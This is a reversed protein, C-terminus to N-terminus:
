SHDAVVQVKLNATVEHHLKISVNTVGLMKIAEHLQIKKKDIPFGADHLGEAIQKSTIAGFVRDGDGVKVPLTLTTKEIKEALAKASDLIQQEKRAESAKHQELEKLVEQTALTALKRPFLYNRAYGESVNKVEGKKGQNTVDQLFVVKM